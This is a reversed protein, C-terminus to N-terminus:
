CSATGDGEGSGGNGDNVGTDYHDRVAGGGGSSEGEEGCASIGGSRLLRGDLAEGVELGLPVGDAHVSGRLNARVGRVGDESDASGCDYEGTGGGENGAGGNGESGSGESESSGVCPTTTMVRVSSVDWDSVDGNFKAANAFM